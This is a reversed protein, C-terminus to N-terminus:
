IYSRLALPRPRYTSGTSYHANSTGTVFLKTRLIPLFSNRASTFPPGIYVRLAVRWFMGSFLMRVESFVRLSLPLFNNANKRCSILQGCQSKALCHFIGSASAGIWPHLVLLIRMPYFHTRHVIILIVQLYLWDVETKDALFVFPQITAQPSLGFAKTIPTFRTTLICSVMHCTKSKTLWRPILSQACHRLGLFICCSNFFWVPQRLSPWLQLSFLRM